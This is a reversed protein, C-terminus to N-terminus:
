ARRSRAILPLHLTFTSGRGYESDVDIRGGMMETFVRSIALGLGTGGYRRSTSPDAQRFPQFLRSQQRPTMGIGTDTVSIKLWERGDRTERRAVLRVAGNETFKVANSLLNLLVQRVRVPDAVMRDLGEQITLELSNKKANAQPRVQDVVELIIGSPSFAEAVIEMRGAEIKSLDLIDSILGLLHKGATQIKRLDVETPNQGDRLEDIMMESYGIVANLPTRLEHSMNALFRSKAINAEEALEKAEVLREEAQKRLTIDSAICVVETLRGDSAVIRSSSFLVPVLVGQRNRYRCDAHSIDETMLQTLERSSNKRDSALVTSLPKGQLEEPRYGLLDRAAPNISTINGDAGLVILTEALSELINDVYRKAHEIKELNARSEAEKVRANRIAEHLSTVILFLFYATSATQALQGSLSTISRDVNMRAPLHGMAEIGYLGGLSLLSIGAVILVIRGRFLLAGLVLVISFGGASLSKIGGTVLASTVVITWLGVILAYASTLVYGFHLMLRLTLVVTLTVVYIPYSNSLGGDLFPQVISMVLTLGICAHLIRRLVRSVRAREEDEPALEGAPTTPTATM